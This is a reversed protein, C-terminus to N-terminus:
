NLKITSGQVTVLGGTQITIGAPGIEITSGGASLKITAGASVDLTAGASIEGTAGSILKFAVGGSLEINASAGHKMNAGATVEDNASVSVTRDAGVAVEQKGGVSVTENGSVSVERNGAVQTTQNGGVSTAQDAAVDITQNAGVSLVQNSGVSMTEDVAVSATRNNNVTHTEDNEVTTDMNYQAHVTFGEQGKKDNLQFGNYGGGGPTSNSMVGSIMGGAPMGFPPANQANYVSGVVIPQDADGELFDVIVEQGIRPIAAAGWGQGAWPHSCRIWCSSNEDKKGLRDWHFQVKVRGHEDTYIEEGAPGVVVATQSGVIVPKAATQQPRFPVSLPLVSFENSYDFADSNTSRYDGANCTHQVSTLVYPQNARDNTHEELTFKHGAVFNRCDSRGRAQERMAEEAELRYKALREGDERSTYRGPWYEYVEEGNEGPAEGDLTFNPQLYDYDRFTVAGIRVSSELEFATVINNQPSSSSLMPVTTPPPCDSIHNNSDALILTHKDETHEFFYFIGEDALLRQMFSLSTERYQVCYERVPRDSCRFEFDTYSAKEFVETLIEIVSKKQFIRCDRQLSLFFTWPVLEAWYTTLEADSTGQAFRSFIGNIHRESGDALAITLTGPKRLVSAPDINREESQLEMRFSFERSVAEEGTFRVLLLDDPGLPGDLRALRMEQTFAGM